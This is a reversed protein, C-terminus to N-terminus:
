MKFQTHIPEQNIPTKLENKLAAYTRGQGERGWAHIHPPLAEYSETRVSSACILLPIDQAEKELYAM